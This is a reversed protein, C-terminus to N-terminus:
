LGEMVRLYIERVKDAFDRYDKLLKEDSAKNRYGTRKALTVLEDSGARLYGEPRDHVIRLGMELRRFFAHAERLARYDEEEIIGERCLRALAKLTGPTRLSRRAGGWRLQLTQVLFEIDTIGGRGTKVNYRTPDERAIEKEMRGRIRLLEKVDKATLPKAYVAEELEKLVERGFGVDAAVARARTMAQREWVQTTRSHYGVLAARTVVLPGSSGSPRLRTDVSFVMGERTRLSLISIVRQCLKVFFEHTSIERPGTTMGGGGGEGGGPPPPPDYVFIIDLDSGYILERGGLKGLGIIAFRTGEPPSGYREELGSRALRESAELAAEALFTMQASVAHPSLRGQIDNIGIRFVEQNRLRRLADLKDEYDATSRVEGDWQSVIEERPRYPVALDGSLFIDLSEPHEILTRSLFVSTGFLKMLEGTVAPNEYLLAYLTTRAGASCLFDELHRLAMDPDPSSAAESLLVPALKQILVRSRAGLRLFAPGGRLRGLNAFAREPDKFGLRALRQCAETETVDPSIVVLIDVPIERLDTEEEAGYFLARFAGHVAGTVKRYEDLFGEGERGDTRSLGMMRALRRLEAPRAPVAQTQRGDVIQIRHELNRLFTYGRTLAAATEGELLGKAGLGEITRLTSRERLDPDKGGYILQLAQCVFEVERIGGRGLKVDVRDPARRLLSLNIKEKMSKIEEIATFDLHRRFVFPRIMDLFEGALERSGAVPRAKIFAAREWPQGWSEYYSEMASLSNAMPGNPGEPRLDLDVRFVFGDATVASILKTVMAALKVFYAHLGIRSGEDGEVGTSEGAGTSYVYIIDIDSSFNLEWGGLKGLGLVTFEAEKGRGKDDEGVPAGHAERMLSSAFRVAADLCVSALASLEATTGALDAMGLLDRAGIRLVERNRFVRLARAMAEFDRAGETLLALEDSMAEPAKSGELGGSLFLGEFHEGDRLVLGTLYPSSGALTILRKISGPSSALRALARPALGGAIRELNNLAGEPSPSALAGEVMLDIHVSLPGRALAKLDRLASRPDEFGLGSLETVAEDERDKGALLAEKLMPTKM